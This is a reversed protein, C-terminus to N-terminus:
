ILTIRMVMSLVKKYAERARDYDKLMAYVSGENIYAEINEQDKSEAKRYFEIAEKYKKGAHLICGQKIYEQALSLDKRDM